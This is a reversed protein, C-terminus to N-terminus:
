AQEEMEILQKVGDYMQKIAEYQTLGLTVKNSINYYEDSNRSSSGSASSVCLNLQECLDPFNSRRSLKPLRIQVSARIASGLNCPNATLWGLRDDYAFPLKKELAKLGRILRSLVQMIDNGEEASIINLHDEDNVKVIFSKNKNHFVGRGSPWSNYLHPYNLAVTNDPLIHKFGFDDQMEKTMNSVSYYMGQFDPDEIQQVANKVKQEIILYDDETLLMSFPYGSISRYCQISVSKIYKGNADLAPFNDIKQEGYDVPPQKAGPKFGHYDELVKDFLAAFKYYSESDAAYMGARSDKDHLGSNIVECLTAGLKTKKGELKQLIVPTLNRKLLPSCKEAKQLEAYANRTRKIDFADGESVQYNMKYLEETALLAATAGGAIKFLNKFLGLRSM